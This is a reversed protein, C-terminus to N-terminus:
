RVDRTLNRAGEEDAVCMRMGLFAVSCMMASQDV